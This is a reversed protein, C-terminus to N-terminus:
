FCVSFGGFFGSGRVILVKRRFFEFRGRIFVVGLVKVLDVCCFKYFSEWGRRGGRFVM